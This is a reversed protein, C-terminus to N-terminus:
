IGMSPIISNSTKALFQEQIEQQMKCITEMPSAPSVMGEDNYFM